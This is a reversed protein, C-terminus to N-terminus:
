YQSSNILYTLKVILETKSRCHLKNKILEIHTEVTRPSLNLQEAIERITMGTLILNACEFQRDTLYKANTNVCASNPFKEPSHLIGIKSIISLSDALSHKGLLISCGFLGIVDNDSNYWPMKISLTPHHLHSGALIVDEEYIKMIKSRVVLSNHRTTIATSKKTLNIFCSQGIAEDVSKFGCLEANHGNITQNINNSNLFYVCIPLQLLSGITQQTDIGNSHEHEATNSILKIGPGCRYIRMHDNTNTQNIIM